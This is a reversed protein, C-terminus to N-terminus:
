AVVTDRLFAVTGTQEKSGKDADEPSHGSEGPESNSTLTNNGQVYARKAKM